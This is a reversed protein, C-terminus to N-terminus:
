IFRELAHTSQDIPRLEPLYCLLLIAREDSKVWTGKMDRSYSFYTNVYM